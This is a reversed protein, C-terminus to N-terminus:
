GAESRQVRFGARYDSLRRVKALPQKKSLGSTSIARNLRPREAGHGTAFLSIQAIDTAIFHLGNTVAIQIQPEDNALQWRPLQQGGGLAVQAAIGNISLENVIRIKRGHECGAEKIAPFQIRL